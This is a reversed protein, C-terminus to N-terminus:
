KHREVLSDLFENVPRAGGTDPFSSMEVPILRESGNGTLDFIAQRLAETLRRATVEADQRSTEPLLIAVCDEDLFSYQDSARVNRGVTERLQALVKERGGNMDGTAPGLDFCVLSLFTRYRDARQIEIGVQNLFAPRPINNDIRITLDM